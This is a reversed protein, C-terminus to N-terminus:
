PRSTSSSARLRCRGSWDPEPCCPESGGLPPPSGFGATRAFAGAKAHAEETDKIAILESPRVNNKVAQRVLSRLFSPPPIVMRELAAQEQWVRGARHGTGGGWLGLLVEVSEERVFAATARAYQPLSAQYALDDFRTQATMTDLEPLRGLPPACNLRKCQM